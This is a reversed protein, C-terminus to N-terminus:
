IWISSYTYHCQIAFSRRFSYSYYGSYRDWFINMCTISKLRGSCNCMHSHTGVPLWVLPLCLSAPPPSTSSFLLLPPQPPSPVPGPVSWPVHLSAYYGFQNCVSVKKSPILKWNCICFRTALIIKENCLCIEPFKLLFSENCFIERSNWNVGNCICIEPEFHSSETIM